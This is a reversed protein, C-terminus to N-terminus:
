IVIYIKMKKLYYALTWIIAVHIVAIPFIVLGLTNFPFITYISYAILIHVLYLIFANRGVASFIREKKVFSYNVGWLEYIYNLIFYVISAVGISILIYPLSIYPRSIGWVFASGIGILLLLFGGYLFYYRVYEKGKKLGEALFSSLIIMSGWSFIGLIGGEISDYIVISIPTFLIFQHLIMFVNAFLLKVYPKTQLLPLLILGSAGLVQLTGWRFFFGEPGVYMMLVLGIGIFILYRRIYRILARKKGDIEVRRKYSINLNLALMFVFFPAVLDVYTLGYDGAHRTWVPMADYPHVSNVFVMLLVTLGKFVDISLIREPQKTFNEKEQTM